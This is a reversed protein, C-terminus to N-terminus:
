DEHLEQLNQIQLRAPVLHEQWQTDPKLNRLPGPVKALGRTGAIWLGGDRTPTMSSFKELRTQEAKRLVTTQTSDSVAFNVELLQDPLLCIVLGQRVPYLSAPDSSGPGASHGLGEPLPHTAWSGEKYEQLVSRGVTWLQGGPSEYVRSSGEPAPVMTITYGDLQSAASSSLHRAVARGQPSVSVSVCASEPLGDALKYVRWNPTRQALSPGALATCAAGILVTMANRTM